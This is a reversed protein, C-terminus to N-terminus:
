HFLSSVVLLLYGVGLCLFYLRGGSRHPHQDVPWPRLWLALGRLAPEANPSRLARSEPLLKPGSGSFDEIGPRPTQVQDHLLAWLHKQAFSHSLGIGESGSLQPGQKHEGGGGEIAQQCMRWRNRRPVSDPSPPAKVLAAQTTSPMFAPCSCSLSRRAWASGGGDTPIARTRCRASEWPLHSLAM